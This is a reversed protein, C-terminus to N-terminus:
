LQISRYITKFRSYMAYRGKLIGYALKVIFNNLYDLGVFLNVTYMYLVKFAIILIGGRLICARRGLEEGM